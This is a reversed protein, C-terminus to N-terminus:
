RKSKDALWSGIQPAIEKQSRSSVYMGIHGVPFSAFTKDTSGVADLLPKSSSLPVLHDYEACIALLPCTINKLNVKKG